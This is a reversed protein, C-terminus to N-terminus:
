VHTEKQRTHSYRLQVVGSPYVKQQALALNRPASPGDFLPIGAGLIIPLISIISETILAEWLFSGALKGGGVLWVRRHREAIERLLDRPHQDTLTVAPPAAKLAHHSFVWCPKGPYPWENFTLCQEYTRRGLVM